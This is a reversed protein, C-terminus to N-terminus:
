PYLYPQDPISVPTIAHAVIVPLKWGELDGPAFVGAVEVWQDDELQDVESSAVVLGLASADAVCCSVLYRVVMFHDDGYKEDKYVFGVVKAEQGIVKPDQNVASSARFTKWWDLVNKETTAKHAAAGVIGPMSTQNLGVNVERNALASAGLPQPPVALGLVIPLLVLVVGSWTLGHHHGHHDHHDHDQSDTQGAPRRGVGYSLGVLVLGFIALLTFGLFRQNIYFYLTGNALRSYLFLGLAILLLAKLSTELRRQMM